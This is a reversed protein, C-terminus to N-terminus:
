NSPSAGAEGPPPAVPPTVVPAGAPASPKEKAVTEALESIRNLWEECSPHKPYRRLVSFMTEFASRRLGAKNFDEGMAWTLRPLRETEFTEINKGSASKSDPQKKKGFVSGSSAPAQALQDRAEALARELNIRQEWLGKVKAPANKVALDLPRRFHGEVDLLSKPWGEPCLKEVGFRRAVPSSFADERMVEAYKECKPLDRIAETLLAVAAPAAKDGNEPYADLALKLYRYQYRLATGFSIDHLSDSRRKRWDDFDASKLNKREFDAVKVSGVYLDTSGTSGTIAVVLASRTAEVSKREEADMGSRMAKLQRLLAMIEDSSIEQSAVPAASPAAEGAAFLAPAVLVSFLPFIFRPM